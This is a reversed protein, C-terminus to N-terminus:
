PNILIQIYPLVLHPKNQVSAQRPAINALRCNWRSNGSQFNTNIYPTYNCFLSTESTAALSSHTCWRSLMTSLTTPANLKIKLPKGMTNVGAVAALQGSVNVHNQPFPGTTVQHGVKMQSFNMWKKGLQEDKWVAPWMTWFYLDPGIPPTQVLPQFEM